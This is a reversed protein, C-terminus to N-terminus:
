RFQYNESEFRTLDVQCQRDGSFPVIENKLVLGYGKLNTAASVVPRFVIQYTSSIADILIQIELVLFVMHIVLLIELKNLHVTINFYVTEPWVDSVDPCKELHKVFFMVRVLHAYEQM